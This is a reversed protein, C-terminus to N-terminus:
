LYKRAERVAFPKMDKEHADLFSIVPAPDRKSLERLWWGIAKQIFWERDPTYEAAWRLVSNRAAIETENPTKIRAFPLAIVLAARRQWFNEAKTLPELQSLLEPFKALRKSAAMSLHDAIAWSDFDKSLELVMDLEGRADRPKSTELLKGAAVRAEYIDSLWLARMTECVDARHRYPKIINDIKANSLGLYGRPIKHYAFMEVARSKDEAAYLATLIQEAAESM